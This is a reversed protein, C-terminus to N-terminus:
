DLDLFFLDEEEFVGGVDLGELLLEWDERMVELRPRVV